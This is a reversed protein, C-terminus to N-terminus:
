TSFLFSILWAMSVARLFFRRQWTRLTRVSLASRRMGLPGSGLAKNASGPATSAGASSSPSSNTHGVIRSYM